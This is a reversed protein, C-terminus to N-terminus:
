RTGLQSRGHAEVQARMEDFTTIRGHMPVVQKVDLRLREVAQYMHVLNLVAGPADAPTAPTTYSDAQMLIKEKPLHIMLMNSNHMNGPYHYVVMRRTGDSFTRSGVVGEFTAQKGSRSLRDPAITRPQAWVQQYYPVNEQHTVIIAGEAAYTRLGSAHDFHSHTNIVYRIPKSPIVKKIAEMVAISREEGEPADVVVIHDRFEVAVSKSYGPVVWVGPSLQEAVLPAAPAPTATRIAEPVDLTFPANPTVQTITVDLVPYGASRHVIRTPFRVGNFDKYDSFEAEYVIDGLMPHSIWTEVREVLHQDNIVGELTVKTPTTVTVVTKKAGRVDEIRTQPTGALAAKLFGHPTMWIQALRGAVATRLDRELGAPATVGNIVDWATDGKLLWTQRQEGLVPQFGGGLPPNEAQARRRDDRLAPAAFDINIAYLPLNFRPWASSGNYAQGFIFDSGYGTYQITQLSTAGLTRAADEVPRAEQASATAAVFLLVFIAPFGRTM